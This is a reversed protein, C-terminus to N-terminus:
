CCVHKVKIPYSNRKAATDFGVLEIRLPPQVESEPGVPYSVPRRPRRGSSGDEDGENVAGGDNSAAEVNSAVAFLDTSVQSSDVASTERTM